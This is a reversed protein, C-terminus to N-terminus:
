VADKQLWGTEHFHLQRLTISVAVHVDSISVHVQVYAHMDHLSTGLLRCRVQWPQQAQSLTAAGGPSTGLAAQPQWFHQQSMSPVSQAATAVPPLGAPM